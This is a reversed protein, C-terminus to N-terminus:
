NYFCAVLFNSSSICLPVYMHQLTKTILVAGVYVWCIHDTCAHCAFGYM